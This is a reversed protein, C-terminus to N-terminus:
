DEDEKEEDSYITELFIKSSDLIRSRMEKEELWPFQNYLSQDSVRTSLYFSKDPHGMEEILQLALTTKGTGASGKLFLSSGGGKKLFEIIEKPIGEVNTM